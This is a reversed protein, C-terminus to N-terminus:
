AHRSGFREALVYRTIKGSSTRPLEDVCIVRRPIKYPAIRGQCHARIDGSGLTVGDRTVLVALIVDERARGAIGLVVSELVAPHDNLVTEIEAPLIREGGRNIVNTKRDLIYLYGAEDLYGLDGTRFWNGDFAAASEAADDLYGDFVNAGRAQVEGQAYPAVVRGADDVIRLEVGALARGCSALRGPARGQVAALHDDHSLMTLLPGTESLGYGQTIALEPYGRMLQEIRPVPMSSAGYILRKLSALQSDAGAEGRLLLGIMSPVLMTDTVGYRAVAARFASPSFSALYANAAGDLLSSLMLLDASHFMPAVHLCVAGSARPWALGVQMANVLIQQHSLPVGKPRGQTGSTFYVIAPESARAEHRAAPADTLLSWDTFHEENLAVRPLAALDAPLRALTDELRPGVALLCARSLRLCSEIEPPALRPNVLVPLAGLWVGALLIEAYDHSNAGLIAYRQGPGLGRAALAGAALAVRAQVTSWDLRGHANLAATATSFLRAARELAGSLTSM